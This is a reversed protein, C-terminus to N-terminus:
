VHAGGCISPNVLYDARQRGPSDSKRSPAPRLWSAEVLAEIAERVVDAERLGPLGASRRLERANLTKPKHKLL